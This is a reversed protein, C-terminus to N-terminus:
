WFRCGYFFITDIPFSQLSYLLTSIGTIRPPVNTHQFSNTTLNYGILTIGRFINATSLFHFINSYLHLVRWCSWCRNPPWLVHVPQFPLSQMFRCYGLHFKSHVRFYNDSMYYAASIASCNKETFLLSSFSNSWLYLAWALKLHWIFAPYAIGLKFCISPRKM